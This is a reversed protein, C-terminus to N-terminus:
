PPSPRGCSDDSGPSRRSVTAAVGRNTDPHERALREAVARIEVRAQEITMGDALRGTGNLNRVNRPTAVIGSMLALPQWLEATGPFSFRPAMVGVVTSPVDNVRITRGLIAPDAAYRGRWIDDGLIVVAAAGPRDDEPLFGRGLIPRMRLVDLMNASMYAGRFREAAREEDSVNMASYASVAFGALARTARQM